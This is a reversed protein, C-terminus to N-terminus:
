KRRWLKRTTIYDLKPIRKKVPVVKSGEPMRKWDIGPPLGVTVEKKTWPTKLDEDIEYDELIVELMDRDPKTEDEVICADQMNFVEEDSPNIVIIEHKAPDYSGFPHPTVLPKGGNGFCPHDPAQYMGLIDKTLKDRLIFIWHVEGSSTVYRQQAYGTIGTWSINTAYTTGATTGITFSQVEGDKKIQPYFGYTGGPLTYNGTGGNVSGSSTKLKAQAVASAALKGETVNLNILKV